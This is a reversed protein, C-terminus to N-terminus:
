WDAVAAPWFLVYIINRKDEMRERRTFAVNPNLGKLESDTSPQEVLRGSSCALYLVYIINRKDVM